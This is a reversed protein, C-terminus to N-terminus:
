MTCYLECSPDDARPTDWAIEIPEGTLFNNVRKTEPHFEYRILPDPDAALLIRRSEESVVGTHTIREGTPRRRDRKYVQMIYNM